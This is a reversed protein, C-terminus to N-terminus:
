ESKQSCDIAVEMPLVKEKVESKTPMVAASLLEAEM